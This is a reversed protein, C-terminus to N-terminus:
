LLNYVLRAAVLDELAHGVSKFLTISEDSERGAVRGQCLDFLDGRIDDVGIVGNHMPIVLDGSEKSAGERTDVYLISRRICDDDAERMDPKFSGVLDLHQGSRLHVGPVLPTNSLTAVSIIDVTSMAAPIKSVPSVEFGDGDLQRCLEEARAFNRGWVFVKEIPRVAAHARVLYPALSGTGIMLMSNADTRSLYRSALASAAATRLNTLTKAEISALPKGNNADFLLYAGQVSPLSLRSNEPVVTIIKVGIFTGTQWAPMLLLTSDLSSTSNAVDYHHRLPVEIDERFGQDLADILLPFKCIEELQQAHIATM